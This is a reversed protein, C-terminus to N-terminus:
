KMTIETVWPFIRYPQINRNPRETDIVGEGKLGPSFRDRVVAVQTTGPSLASRLRRSFMIPLTYEEGTGKDTGPRGFWQPSADIKDQVVAPDDLPIYGEAEAGQDNIHNMIQEVNMKPEYSFGLIYRGTPVMYIGTQGSQIYDDASRNLAFETIGPAPDLRPILDTPATDENGPAAAYREILIGFIDFSSENFIQITGAETQKEEKDPTQPSASQDALAQAQKAVVNRLTEVDKGLGQALAATQKENGKKAMARYLGQFATGFDTPIHEELVRPENQEKLFKRWSEMLLKM